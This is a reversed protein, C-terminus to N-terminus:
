QAVLPDLELAALERHVDARSSADLPLLPPLVAPGCLGLSELCTKLAALSQGLTRDRQFVRAVSDARRQLAEAQEWNGALAANYLDRWLAPAINGSSPVLGDFGHRLAQASLVAAGMFISFDPRNAFLAATKELRGPVNESDKFGVINPIESLREVVDLPLSMRTTQPINYLVLSGQIERALLEYCAQMESPSLLYYSSLPAVVADAGLRLWHRGAETSTSLCNDCIGAYVPVRGAATKVAIEVLRARAAPPISAAEGTTGLVFVGMDNRALHGVLREAAPEDLAGIATFPTAMPVIVGRHKTPKAM